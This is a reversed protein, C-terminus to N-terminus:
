YYDKTMENCSTTDDESDSFLEHRAKPITEYRKSAKKIQENLRLREKAIWNKGFSSNKKHDERVKDFLTNFREIGEHTWGKGMEISKEEQSSSIGGVRTYKPQITCETHRKGRGRSSVLNGDNMRFIELWRDWNNELVLLVFAENSITTIDDDNEANAVIHKWYTKRGIAPIFWTFFVEYTEPNDRM